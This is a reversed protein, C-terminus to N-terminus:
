PQELLQRVPVAADLVPGDAGIVKVLCVDGVAVFDRVVGSQSDRMAESVRRRHGPGSLRAASLGM